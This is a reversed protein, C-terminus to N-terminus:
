TSMNWKLVFKVLITTPLLFVNTPNGFFQTVFINSNHDLWRKSGMSLNKSIRHILGLRKKM